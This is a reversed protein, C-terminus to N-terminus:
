IIQLLITFIAESIDNMTDNIMSHSSETPLMISTIFCVVLM